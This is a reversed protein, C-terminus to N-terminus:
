RCQSELLTHAPPAGPRAIPTSFRILSPCRRLDGSGFTDLYRLVHIYYHQNLIDFAEDRPLLSNPCTLELWHSWSFTYEHSDHHNSGAGRNKRMRSLKIRLKLVGRAAKGALDPRCSDGPCNGPLVLDNPSETRWELDQLDIPTRPFTRGPGTEGYSCSRRYGSYM